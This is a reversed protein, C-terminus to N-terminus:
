HSLASQWTTNESDMKQHSVIVELELELPDSVRNQVCARVCVSIIKFYNKYFLSGLQSGKLHM